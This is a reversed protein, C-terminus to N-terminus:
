PGRAASSMQVHEQQERLPAHLLLEGLCSSHRGHQNQRCGPFICPPAHCGPFACVQTLQQGTSQSSCATLLTQPQLVAHPLAQLLFM